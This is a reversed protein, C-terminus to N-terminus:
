KWVLVDFEAFLPDESLQVHQLYGIRGDATRMCMTGVEAPYVWARANQQLM